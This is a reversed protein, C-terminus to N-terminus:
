AHDATELFLEVSIAEENIVLDAKEYYMKREGLKRQIYHRLDDDSIERLLPRKNKERLLRQWLIDIPPNIWVVKGHKKMYEINNFFCPTGGGCSVVFGETSDARETIDYLTNKEVIRFYEEGEEAFISEISRGEKEVIVEDLDYFPVNLYEALKAGWYSKGSGMFGVLFTKMRPEM